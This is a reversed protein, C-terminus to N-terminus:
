AALPPDQRHFDTLQQYAHGTRLLLAEASWAADLQLGVPLGDSFGCPVSLSPIGGLAAAFTNRAVARTSEFLSRDDRIPPAVVPVTPSAIVDIGAFLERLTRRWQRRFRLAEAADVATYDFGRIMRERVDPSFQAPESRLREGHIRCADAFLLCTLRDQTQDADPIRVDVLRAGAQELLRLASQVRTVIADSCGEFYHNSPVGIRVGRVGGDLSGIVDAVPAATSHPDTPDHGAIVAFLRAVDTVRRAMPGVTDFAESVPLTGTNPVAGHTPRLGAVGTMAAPLRVSGGTDTGLAARCFGAALSVASGGSSGGPIRTPDWPNCCQGGVASRSHVGFALETMNAKGVLIAGARVLRSVVTADATPIRDRLFEAGATTRVGATDINDKLVVTVGQLPGLWQGDQWARDAARAQDVLRGRDYRTILARLVPDQRDTADLARELQDLCSM